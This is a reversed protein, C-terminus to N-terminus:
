AIRQGGLYGGTCMGETVRRPMERANPCRVAHDKHRGGKALPLPSGVSLRRPAISPPVSVAHEVGAKATSPRAAPTSPLHRSPIETVRRAVVTAMPDLVVDGRYRGGRGIALFVGRLAESAMDCIPIPCLDPRNSHSANANKIAATSPYKPVTTSQYLVIHSQSHTESANVKLPTQHKTTNTWLKQIDVIRLFALLLPDGARPGKATKVPLPSGIAHFVGM